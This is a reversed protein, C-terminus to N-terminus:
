SRLSGRTGAEAADARAEAVAWGPSSPGAYGRCSLLVGTRPDPVQHAYWTDGHPDHQQMPVRHKPCIPRGDPTRQWGEGPAAPHSGRRVLDAITADMEELSPVELFVAFGSPHLAQITPMPYGERQPPRAALAAPLVALLHQVAHAASRGDTIIRDHPALACEAQWSGRPPANCSVQVPYCAGHVAGQITPRRADPPQLAEAGAQEPVASAPPRTEAGAGRGRRGAAALAGRRPRRTRAPPNPRGTM